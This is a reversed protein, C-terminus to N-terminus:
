KYIDRRHGILLINIRRSSSDTSYIVRYDGVRLRFLGKFGGSLPKYVISECDAALWSVKNLIRQAVQLELKELEEEAEPTFIVSYPTVV